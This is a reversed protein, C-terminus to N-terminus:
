HQQGGERSAPMVLSLAPPIVVRDLPHGADPGRQGSVRYSAYQVAEVILVVDETPRIPSAGPDSILLGAVCGCVLCLEDM